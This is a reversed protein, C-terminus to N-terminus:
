KDCTSIEQDVIPSLQLLEYNSLIKVSWRTITTLLQFLTHLTVPPPASSWATKFTAVRAARCSASVAQSLQLSLQHCSICAQGRWRLSTTLEHAASSYLCDINPLESLHSESRKISSFFIKLVLIYLRWTKSIFCWLDLIKSIVERFTTKDVALHRTHSLSSIVQGVKFLSEFFFFNKNWM